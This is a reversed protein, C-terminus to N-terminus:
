APKIRIWSKKEPNHKALEFEVLGQEDFSKMLELIYGKSIGLKDAFYSTQLKKDGAEKMVDLMRKEYKMRTEKNLEM